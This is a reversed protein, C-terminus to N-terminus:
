RPGGRRTSRPGPTPDLKLRLDPNQRLWGHLERLDPPEGLRISAVFNVPRAERGIAQELSLGNQRLALDLAASEFAWRRYLRYAPQEPPQAPFLDLGALHASFSGITWSGALELVPGLDQQRRQDGADYTVDEGLGEEGGGRLHVITSVREFGSSVQLSLAELEYGEITFPLDAIRDYSPM